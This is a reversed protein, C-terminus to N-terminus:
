DTDIVFDRIGGRVVDAALEFHGVMKNKLGVLRETDVDPLRV